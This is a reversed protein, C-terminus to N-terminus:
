ACALTTSHDSIDTRGEGFDRSHKIVLQGSETLMDITYVRIGVLVKKYFNELMVFYFHKGDM